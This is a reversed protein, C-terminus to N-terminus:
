PRGNGNPQTRRPYRYTRGDLGVVRDRPLDVTARTVTTRAAGTAAAVASVSLGQMRLERIQRRRATAPDGAALAVRDLQRRLGEVEHALRALEDLEAALAGHVFDALAQRQAADV